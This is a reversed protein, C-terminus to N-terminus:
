LYTHQNISDLFGFIVAKVEALQLQYYFDRGKM